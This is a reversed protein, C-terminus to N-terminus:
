KGVKSNKNKIIDACIFICENCIYVFPGAILQEVEDKNKGCFSCCLNPPPGVLEEIADLIKRKEEDGGTYTNGDAWTYTGKGHQKGDVFDGTYKRATQGSTSDRKRHQKGDVFDGTYKHATQGSTLGKETGNAM